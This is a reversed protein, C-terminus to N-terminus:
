SSTRVRQCLLCLNLLAATSMNSQLYQLPTSIMHLNNCRRRRDCENLTCKFYIGKWEVHLHRQGRNLTWKLLM